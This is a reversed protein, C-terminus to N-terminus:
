LLFSFIGDTQDAMLLTQLGRWFMIRQNMEIAKINQTRGRCANVVAIRAFKSLDNMKWYNYKKEFNSRPECRNSGLILDSSSKRFCLEPKARNRTESEGRWGGKVKVRKKGDLASIADAITQCCCSSVNNRLRGVREIERAREDQRVQSLDRLKSIRPWTNKNHQRQGLLYRSILDSYIAHIPPLTLTPVCQTKKANSKRILTAILYYNLTPWSSVLLPDRNM